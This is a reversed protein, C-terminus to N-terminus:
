VRTFSCLCLAGRTEYEQLIVYVCFVQTEHEQLIVYVCLVGHKM